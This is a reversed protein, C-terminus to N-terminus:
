QLYKLYTFLFYYALKICLIINNFSIFSFNYDLQSLSKKSDTKVSKFNTLKMSKRLNKKFIYFINEKFSREVRSFFLINQINILNILKHNRKEGKLTHNKKFSNEQYM